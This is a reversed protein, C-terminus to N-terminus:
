RAGDVRGMISDYVSLVTVACVIAGLILYEANDNSPELVPLASGGGSQTHIHLCQCRILLIYDLIISHLKHWRYTSRSRQYM